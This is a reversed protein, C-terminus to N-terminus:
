SSIGYSWINQPVSGNLAGPFVGSQCRNKRNINRFSTIILNRWLVVAHKTFLLSLLSVFIGFELMVTTIIKKQLYIYFMSILFIWQEM